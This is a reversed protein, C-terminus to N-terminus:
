TRDDDDDGGDIHERVESLDDDDDGIDSTDEILSEDEDDDDDDDLDEDDEVPKPKPASRSKSPENAPTNQRKLKLGALPDHAEGCKPCIVPDKNLDYFKAGCSGCLRKAGREPLLL